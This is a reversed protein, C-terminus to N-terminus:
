LTCFIHTDLVNPTSQLCVSQMIASPGRTTFYIKKVTEAIEAFKILDEDGGSCKDGMGIVVDLKPFLELAKARGDFEMEGPEYTVSTFNLQFFFKDEDGGSRVGFGKGGNMNNISAVMGLTISKYFDVCDSRYVGGLQLYCAPGTGNCSMDTIPILESAEGLLLAWGVLLWFFVNRQGSKRM